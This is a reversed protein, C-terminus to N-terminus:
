NNQKKNKQSKLHEDKTIEFLYNLSIEYTILQPKILHFSDKSNKKVQNDVCNILISCKSPCFSQKNNIINQSVVQYTQNTLLSQKNILNDM